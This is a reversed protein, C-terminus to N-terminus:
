YALRGNSDTRLVGLKVKGTAQNSLTLEVRAHQIPKLSKRNRVLSRLGAPSDPALKAQGRIVTEQLEGEHVAVYISFGAVGLILLAAALGVKRVMTNGSKRPKSAEGDDIPNMFWRWILFEADRARTKDHHGVSLSVLLVPSPM